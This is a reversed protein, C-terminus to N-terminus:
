PLDGGGGFRDGDLGDDLASPDPEFSRAPADFAPLASAADSLDGSISLDQSGALPTEIIPEAVAAGPDSASDFAGLDVSSPADASVAVDGTTALSARPTLQQIELDDLDEDEGGSDAVPNATGGAGPNHLDGATIGSLPEAGGLVPDNPNIVDPGSVTIVGSPDGVGTQVLDVGGDLVGPNMPVNLGGVPGAGTIDDSTIPAAGGDDVLPGSPDTTTPDIGTVITTVVVDSPSVATPSLDSDPNDYGTGGTGYPKLPGPKPTKGPTGADPASSGSGDPTLADKIKDLWGKEEQKPQNPPVYPQLPQAGVDGDGDGGDDAYLSSGPRPGLGTGITTGGSPAPAVTTATGFSLTADLTTSAVADGGDVGFHDPSTDISAGGLDLAQLGGDIADGAPTATAVTVEGEIGVVDVALAEVPASAVLQVDAERAPQRTPVGQDDFRGHRPSDVMPDGRELVDATAALPIDLASRWSTGALWERDPEDDGELPDSGQAVSV